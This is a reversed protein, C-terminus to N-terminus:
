WCGHIKCKCGVMLWTQLLQIWGYAMYKVTTGLGETMDTLSAGVLMCTQYVQGLGANVNTIAIDLWRHQM